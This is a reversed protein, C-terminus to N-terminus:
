VKVTYKLSIWGAGSKLKGWGNNEAIITYIENRKVATAIKYNTGPGSRVNLVSATVKVLYPNFVPEAPKENYAVVDEIKAVGTIAGAKLTSVIYCTNNNAYGRVYLKSKYVWSKPQKGDAWEAGQVLKVEEGIKFLEDKSPVPIIKNDDDYIGLKKNVQNAIWEHRAYLYDGPCAKNAFWRHVTLNQQDVKGVLSKDGKWLLKKINNRKCIDAVLEVLADLAKDTVAYPHTMDSAVEITVARHDNDAGSIGNVRIPNGYKDTGGTTWARDKEDVSLGISGDRGVVYNASSQNPTTAFYDCGQKATWQAVICHITITDIVDSRRPSTKNKTINTYTVLPSNSFGMISEGKLAYKDYYVQGYEARKTQVELNQNAPREFKFLVTNSAELVSKANKLVKLVTQYSESLEKYLFDLQLQLDGISKDKHNAYTLLNQKRTWYTWQALGYGAGDRVFNKYSGNDVKMTYLEDKLGIKKEFTNQLNQPNLGSEAYLNGMLGATGYENLGKSRFYDWIIKENNM